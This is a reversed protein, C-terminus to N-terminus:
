DVDTFPDKTPLVSPFLAANYGFRAMKVMMSQHHTSPQSVKANLFAKKEHGLSLHCMIWFIVVRM